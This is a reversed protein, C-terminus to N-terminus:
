RWLRSWFGARGLARGIAVNRVRRGTRGTSIARGTASVRAARYLSSTLSRRGVKGEQETVSGPPDYATRRARYLGARDSDCWDDTSSTRLFTSAGSLSRRCRAETRPDPLLRRAAAQSLSRWASGWCSSITLSVTQGTSSSSSRRSEVSAPPCVRPSTLAVWECNGICARVRTAEALTREPIRWRPKSVSKSPRLEAASM